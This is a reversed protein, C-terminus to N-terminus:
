VATIEVIDSDFQGQLVFVVDKWTEFPNGTRPDANCWIADDEEDECIVEFNSDDALDGYCM